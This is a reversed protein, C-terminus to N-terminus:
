DHVDLQESHELLKLPEPVFAIQQHFDLKEELTLEDGYRERQRIRKVSHGMLEGRDDTDVGIKKLRSEFSHRLGGITVGDPLLGASRLSKNAIASFTGKAAYRPFGDPHRKMADLAVGVLPVKRKTGKNKIERAANGTEHRIWIHPIEDELFISRAPIDYIESQRAGTEILVLIIDRLQDNMHSMAGPAIIAEISKNHLEDKRNDQDLRSLGDSLGRFPSPPIDIEDIGLSKFFKQWMLNLNQLEKQASAGKMDEDLVRDKLADRLSVADARTIDEFVPDHGLLEVVKSAPRTWRARWTKQQRENKDRIEEQYREDMSKAVDTITIKPRDIGGLLATAAVSGPADGSTLLSEVRKLIEEFSGESLEQASKYSFGRATTLRAIADYHSVDGPTSHGALKADLDAIIQREVVAAAARAEKEDGTKLSRLLVPRDEVHKYRVPVRMRFHYIKGRKLIGGM